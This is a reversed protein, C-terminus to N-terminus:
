FFIIVHSPESNVKYSTKLLREVEIPINDHGFDTAYGYQPSFLPEFDGIKLGWFFIFIKLYGNFYM